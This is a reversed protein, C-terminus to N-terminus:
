RRLTLDWQWDLMFDEEQRRLDEPSPGKGDSTLITAAIGALFLAAAQERASELAAARQARAEAVRQKEAEYAIQDQKLRNVMARLAPDGPV